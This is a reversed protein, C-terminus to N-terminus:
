LLSSAAQEWEAIEVDLRRRLVELTEQSKRMQLSWEHFEQQFETASNGQWEAATLQNVAEILRFLQLDFNDTTQVIMDLVSRGAETDFHLTTM